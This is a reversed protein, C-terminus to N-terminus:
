ATATAGLAVHYPPLVPPICFFLVWLFVNLPMNVLTLSVKRQGRKPRKKKGGAIAPIYRWALATNDVSLAIAIFIGAIAPIDGNEISCCQNELSTGLFIAIHKIILGQPRLGM